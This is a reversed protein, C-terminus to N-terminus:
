VANDLTRRLSNVFREAETIAQPTGELARVRAIREILASGVIVGDAERAAQAAQEPSSIGFGVM